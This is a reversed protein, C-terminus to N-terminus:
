PLCNHNTKTNQIALLMSPRDMPDTQVPAFWVMDQHQPVAWVAARAAAWPWHQVGGCVAGQVVATSSSGRGTGSGTGRFSQQPLRDGEAGTGMCDSRRGTGTGAGRGVGNSHWGWVM